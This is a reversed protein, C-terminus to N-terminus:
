RTAKRTKSQFNKFLDRMAQDDSKKAGQRPTSNLENKADPNAGHQLLVEAVLLHNNMMALYLPSCGMDGKADVEAGADLLLFVAHRDGWQAAIHLPTEGDCSRTKVGLTKPEGDFERNPFLANAARELFQELTEGRKMEERWERSYNKAAARNRKEDRRSAASRANRPPSATLRGHIQIFFRM